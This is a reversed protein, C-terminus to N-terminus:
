LKVFPLAKVANGQKLVAQYIGAPLHDLAIKITQQGPMLNLTQSQMPKCALDFVVLSFHPIAQKSSVQISLEELAPNSSIIHADLVSEPILDIASTVLDSAFTVTVNKFQKNQPPNNPIQTTTNGESVGITLLAGIRGNVYWNYNTNTTNSIIREGTSLTTTSDKRIYVTKLRMVDKIVANPMKLDGFADYTLSKTTLSSKTGYSDETGQSFQTTINANFFLPVKILLETSITTTASRTPSFINGIVLLNGLSKLETDSVEFYSNSVITDSLIYKALLNRTPWYTDELLTITPKIYNVDYSGLIKNPKLNSYDWIQNSGANGPNVQTTDGVTTKIVVGIRPFVSNNLIPQAQIKSVFFLSICDVILFIKM